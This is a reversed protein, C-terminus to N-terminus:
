AHRAERAAQEQMRVVEEIISVAEEAAQAFEQEHGQALAINFCGAGLQTGAAEALRDRDCGEIPHLPQLTKEVTEITGLLRAVLEYEGMADALGALYLLCEGWVAKFFQLGPLCKRYLQVARAPDGEAKALNGFIMYCECAVVDKDNKTGTVILSAEELLSHAKALDGQRTLVKALETLTDYLVEGRQREITLRQEHLSRALSLDGEAYAIIGLVGLPYASRIGARQAVALSDKAHARAQQYDTKYLDVLSLMLLTYSIGDPDHLTRYIANSQKLYRYASEQDSWGVAAVRGLLLLGEAMGLEYKIDDSIAIAEEEYSQAMGNEHLYHMLIGAELLVKVRPITRVSAGPLALVEEMLHRGEAYPGRQGYWHLLPAAVLLAAQVNNVKAWAFAARANFIEEDILRRRQVNRTDPNPKEAKEVLWLICNAHHKRLEPEEGQRSLRELGYERVTELMVYRPEGYLGAQRHLLSKDLLSAIGDLVQTPSLSFPLPPGLTADDRCMMEAAELTCGGVFVALRTFLTQETPTLLGYSWGIANRLTKQRPSVDRLGDMSLMWPGHLRALLEAPSLLRVRAAV